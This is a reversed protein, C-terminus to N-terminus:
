STLQQEAKTLYVICQTWFLFVWKYKRRYKRLFNKSQQSFKLLFLVWLAVSCFLPWFNFQYRNITVRTIIQKVLAEMAMHWHPSLRDNTFKTMLCTQVITTVSPPIFVTSSSPRAIDTYNLASGLHSPFFWICFRTCNSVLRQSQPVVTFIESIAPSLRNISKLSTSSRAADRKDSITPWHQVYHTDAAQDHIYQM